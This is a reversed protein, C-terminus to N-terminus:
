ARAACGTAERSSVSRARPARPVPETWDNPPAGGLYQVLLSAGEDIQRDPNRPDLEAAAAGLLAARGAPQGPLEQALALLQKTAVAYQGSDLAAM